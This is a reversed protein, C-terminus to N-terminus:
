LSTYPRSYTYWVVLVAFFYFSPSIVSTGRSRSSLLVVGLHAIQRRRSFAPLQLHFSVLLTPVGYRLYCYPLGQLRVWFHMTYNCLTEMGEIPPTFRYACRLACVFACVCDCVCVCLLESVEISIPWLVSEQISSEWKADRDWWPGPRTVPLWGVGRVWFWQSM